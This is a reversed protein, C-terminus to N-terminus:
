HTPIMTLGLLASWDGDQDMGARVAWGWGLEDFNWSVGATAGFNSLDTVVLSELGLNKFRTHLRAHGEEKTGDLATVRWRELPSISRSMQHIMWFSSGRSVGIEAHTSSTTLGITSQHEVRSCSDECIVVSRLRWQKWDLDASVYPSLSLIDRDSILLTGVPVSLRFESAEFVQDVAVQGAILGPRRTFLFPPVDTPLIGRQAFGYVEASAHARPTVRHTWSEFRAVFPVAAEFGPMLSASTSAEFGSETPIVGFNTLVDLHPVIRVSSRTASYAIRLALDSSHVQRNAMQIQHSVDLDSIWRDSHFQTGYRISLADVEAQPTM